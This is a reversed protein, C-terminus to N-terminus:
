GHRVRVTTGGFIGTSLGFRRKQTHPYTGGRCYRKKRETHKIDRTDATKLSSNHEAFFMELSFVM